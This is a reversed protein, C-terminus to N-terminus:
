PSPETPQQNSEVAERCREILITAVETAALESVDLDVARRLSRNLSDSRDFLTEAPNNITDKDLVRAGLQKAIDRAVTLRRTGPWGNIHIIVEQM